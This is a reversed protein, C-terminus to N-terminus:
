DAIRYGELVGPSGLRNETTLNELIGVHAIGIASTISTDAIIGTTALIDTVNTTDAVFATDDAIGVHDHFLTNARIISDASRVTAWKQAVSGPCNLGCHHCRIHGMVFSAAARM